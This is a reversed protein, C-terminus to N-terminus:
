WPPSDRRCFTASTTFDIVGSSPGRGLEGLMRESGDNPAGGVRRLAGLQPVTRSLGRLPRRCDRYAAHLGHGLRPRNAARAAHARGAIRKMCQGGSGKTASQYLPVM